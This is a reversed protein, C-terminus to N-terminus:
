ISVLFGSLVEVIAMSVTIALFNIGSQFASVNQVAQFWIPVYQTVCYLIGTFCFAFWVAAGISRKRIVRLPVTASDGLMWQIYIWILITIAFIVILLIIRWNSWSYQSGGWQLALLLCAM